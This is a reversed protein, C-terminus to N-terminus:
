GSEKSFYTQYWKNTSFSKVKRLDLTGDTKVRYLRKRKWFLKSPSKYRYQGGSSLISTLFENQEIRDSKRDSSLVLSDGIAKKDKNRLQLTDMVFQAKLYITDNKVKWKGTAWSVSLDFSYRHIFTFDSKLEISEAFQDNYVGTYKDQGFTFYSILLIFIFTPLRM